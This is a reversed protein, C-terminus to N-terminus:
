IKLVYVLVIIIITVRHLSPFFIFLVFYFAMNSKRPCLCVFSVAQLSKRVRLKKESRNPNWSLLCVFLRDFSRVLPLFFNTFCQHSNLGVFSNENLTFNLYINPMSFFSSFQFAGYVDCMCADIENSRMNSHSDLAFEFWDLYDALFFFQAFFSM